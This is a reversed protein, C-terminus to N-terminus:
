QPPTRGAGGATSIPVAFGIGVFFSQDTPNALGTVIGIVQGNGNLLPGGSSGPNVAADFQILGDLTATSGPLPVSRELGSIVGASFSAALGLPNGAAFAVDGIKAAGSSGLVAPVVVPPLTDPALVAIDHAADSSVVSAGVRTGDAFIVEITSSGAIVHNATMIQGNANIVVGSGLTGDDGGRPANVIVLSPLVTRYVQAATPAPRTTSTPATARPSPTSSGTIFVLAGAAIALTAVVVPIWRRPSRLASM